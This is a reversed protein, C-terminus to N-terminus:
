FNTKLTCPSCLCRLIYNLIITHCHFPSINATTTHLDHMTDSVIHIQLCTHMILQFIQESIGSNSLLSSSSSIVTVTEMLEDSTPLTIPLYIAYLDQVLQHNYLFSSPLVFLHPTLTHNAPPTQPLHLKYCLPLKPKKKQEIYQTSCPSAHSSQSVPGQRAFFSKSIYM